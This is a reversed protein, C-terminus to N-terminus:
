PPRFDFHTEVSLSLFFDELGKDSKFRATLLRDYNGNLYYRVIRMRASLLKKEYM